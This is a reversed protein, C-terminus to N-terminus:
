QEKNESDGTQEKYKTSPDAHIPISLGSYHGLSSLVGVAGVAVTLGVHTHETDAEKRKGKELQADLYCTFSGPPEPALPVLFLVSPSQIHRSISPQKKKFRDM